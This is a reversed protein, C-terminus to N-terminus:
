RRLLDDAGLETAVVALRHRRATDNAARERLFLLADLSEIEKELERIRELAEQYTAPDRDVM